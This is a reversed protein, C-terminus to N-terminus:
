YGNRGAWALSPPSGVAFALPPHPRSIPKPYVPIGDIQWHRGRFEVPEDAWARLLVEVGEEFRSRSEDQAVGHGLFEIPRNGRGLGVTLRGGSLIDLTATEEALRLPHHFP